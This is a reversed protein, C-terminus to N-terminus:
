GTYGRLAIWSMAQDPIGAWTWPLDSWRPGAGTVGYDTVNLELTWADRTITETDGERWVAVDTYPGDAPIGALGVLQGVDNNLLNVATYGQATRILDVTLSSARWAPRGRRGVLDVGRRRADTYTALRTALEPLEARGWRGAAWEDELEYVAQPEDPGYKIKLANVLGARSQEWVLPALVESATLSVAPIAGFSQGRYGASLWGLRASARDEVVEGGSAESLANLADLANTVAPAPALLNVYNPGLQNILHGPYAQQLIAVAQTSDGGAPILAPDFRRGNLTSKWGAAVIQVITESATDGQQIVKADTVFGGFRRSAMAYNVATNAGGFHYQTAALTMNVYVEDGVVPLVAPLGSRKVAVSLTSPDVREDPSSRGRRITVPGFQEATVNYSDGDIPNFTLYVPPAGIAEEPTM